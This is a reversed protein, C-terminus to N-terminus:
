NVRVRYGGGGSSECYFARAAEAERQVADGTRGSGVNVVRGVELGWWRPEVPAATRRQGGGAGVEIDRMHIICPAGAVQAQTHM